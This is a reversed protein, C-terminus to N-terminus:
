KVEAGQLSYTNTETEVLVQGDRAIKRASSTRPTSPTNVLTNIDGNGPLSYIEFNPEEDIAVFRTYVLQWQKDMKALYLSADQMNFDHILNDDEDIIIASKSNFLVIAIKNRVFLNYAMVCIEYNDQVHSTIDLSKYISFTVPSIFHITSNMSTKSYQMYFPCPLESFIMFNKKPATYTYYHNYYACPTFADGTSTHELTLQAHVITTAFFTIFLFTFKKMKKPATIDWRKM